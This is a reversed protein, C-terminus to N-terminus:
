ETRKLVLSILADKNEPGGPGKTALEGTANNATLEKSYLFGAEDRGNVFNILDTGNPPRFDTEEARDDFAMSLLLLDGEKGYVSPFISYVSDDKSSTNTDRIPTSYDAAGNVVLLFGWGAYQNVPLDYQFTGPDYESWEKFFVITALDKGRGKPFEACYGNIEKKCDMRTWCQKQDDRSKFCSAAYKWGNIKLPLTNGTRSIFLLLLDGKTALRPIDWAIKGDKDYSSTCGHNWDIPVVSSIPSPSPQGSASATLSITPQTDTTPEFTTETPANIPVFSLSHANTETPVNTVATPAFTTETPANTPAFSLSHTNTETPANTPASTPPNTPAITPAPTTTVLCKCKKLTRKPPNPNKCKNKCEKKKKKKKKKPEKHVVVEGELERRHQLQLEQLM